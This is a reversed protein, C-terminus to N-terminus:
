SAKSQSIAVSVLGNASTLIADAEQRSKAAALAAPAAKNIITVSVGWKRGQQLYVDLLAAENPTLMAFIRGDLLKVAAICEPDGGYQEGIASIAGPSLDSLNQTVANVKVNLKYSPTNM